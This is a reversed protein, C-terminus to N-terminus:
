KWCMYTVKM